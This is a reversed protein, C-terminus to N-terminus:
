PRQLPSARRGSLVARPPQPVTVMTQSVLYPWTFGDSSPRLVELLDEADDEVGDQWLLQGLLPQFGDM